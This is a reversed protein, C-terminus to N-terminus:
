CTNMTSIVGVSLFSAVTVIFSCNMHGLVAEVEVEVLHMRVLVDPIVMFSVQRHHQEEEVVVDRHV